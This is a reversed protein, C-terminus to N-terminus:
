SFEARSLLPMLLASLLLWLLCFPLCIQGMVNLPQASYDWVQLGGLVNFVLGFGFEVATIAAAGLLCKSAFGCSRHAIAALLLVACGGAAAMSWHTHGRWALELLPYGCFGLAFMRLRCCNKAGFIEM